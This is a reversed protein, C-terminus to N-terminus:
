GDLHHLVEYSLIVDNYTFVEWLYSHPVVTYSHCINYSMYLYIYLSFVRMSSFKLPQCTQLAEIYLVTTFICGRFYNSLGLKFM